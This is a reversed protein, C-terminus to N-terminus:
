IMRGARTLTLTHTHKYRLGCLYLYYPFDIEGFASCVRMCVCMHSRAPSRSLYVCVCVCVSLIGMLSFSKLSLLSKWLDNEWYLHWLNSRKVFQNALKIWAIKLKQYALAPLFPLSLSGREARMKYIICKYELANANISSSESLANKM